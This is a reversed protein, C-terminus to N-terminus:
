KLEFKSSLGENSNWGVMVNFLGSEVLFKGENNYFGLAADTLTFQVTKTEGKKLAVLEFGKLEKVPRVISAAVDNIYLQVVEKGDFNGTNTVEVSLEIKEGKRFSTKSIKLNKYAFSTYSLGYGFPYLPTKEIDTYHSWFVNQDKDTPRGTNYLNYYIPCQGVNRPFSMTLKGSPNYDGYLVQAIANGSQTGLQWAEVIAPINEAAWPLALPRGNNLVLVINPNVKYIEELLQQQNGPLGLETRSRGEGSQFGIEGLVMVVVDADKAAKKAAEFGSFDTTNIKVEDVFAQKNITVDTGKEYVLRNNKYQQMGELVSIATNDDAAIRWSGLPSNKDNALAGILAIKTGTKKLPLLNKDNKLLVISKKAMDLVGDNNAKNGISSKERAEDCYKYPNDFLGLEFKVRLIRRVADDIVSEKVLGKKVLQVLETVYVHSEMDMDSGAIVAKQAADAGDAAYGHTIMEAISAWDSVVFGNFEWAGKLIDRQLFSNGTAPIGNLTNFSNMFTRVEADVAAKFPPLVSNYLKSNSMDVSNYDRGAEVFGYAAFHKACAVISTNDNLSKGQFGTIRATAIKSGLYPDEGAGEMVRGWRADNSIDVNPAFTWNLGSASAEVAAVRASNKIAELDWSAAEALPIPSLTKYGHIVDFGFIIPIGLRTEEVAIKQVAKVEKVGRISLMSGVWGKKIHNYKEENSGSEPKPGTVDWSGNYQNMQGVKEELTMEKMLLSIRDEIPKNADLHKKTQAYGNGFVILLLFTYKNIQKKM